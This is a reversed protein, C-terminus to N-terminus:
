RTLPAGLPAGPEPGTVGGREERPGLAAIAEACWATVAIRALYMGIAVGDAVPRFRSRRTARPIMTAPVELVAVGRMAASVLVETEFVFGGHIAPAEDLLALPYVRLGSQTDRVRLGTTWQVMLGALRVAHRRAIPLRLGRDQSGHLRGGVVLADPAARAAALLLPLDAPAHQGDGDLTLVHSAGRRRAAAMATRLAEGKGLRVPHRIVEAGAAEAVDASGDSSGDDVVLVPGFARVGAVVCGLTAAENFAPIAIWARVDRSDISV